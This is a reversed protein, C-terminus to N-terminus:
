LKLSAAIYNEEIDDLRTFLRLHDQHMIELKKYGLSLESNQTRLDNTRIAIEDELSNNLSEFSKAKINTNTNTNTNELKDSLALCFVKYFLLDNSDSKKMKVVKVKLVKAYGDVEVHAKCTEPSIISMEGVLDSKDSLTAVRENAVITKL